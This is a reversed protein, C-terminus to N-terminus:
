YNLDTNEQKIPHTKQIHNPHKRHPRNPPIRNTHHDAKITRREPTQLRQIKDQTTRTNKPPKQNNTNTRPHRRKQRNTNPPRPPPSTSKTTTKTQKNTDHHYHTTPPKYQHRSTPIKPFFKKRHSFTPPPTIQHPLTQMQEMTRNPKPSTSPTQMHRRKHKTRPTKHLRTRKQPNSSHLLTQRKRKKALPMANQTM